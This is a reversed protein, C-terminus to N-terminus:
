KSAKGHVRIHAIIDDGFLYARGGIYKVELGKRRAARMAHAGWGLRRKAEALHYMEAPDIVTPTATSNAATAM